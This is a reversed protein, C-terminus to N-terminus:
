RAECRAWFAANPCFDPAREAGDHTEQWGQCEGGHSCFACARVAREVALGTPDSKVDSLTVGLRDMMGAMLRSQRDFRDSIMSFIGM